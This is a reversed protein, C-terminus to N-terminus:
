PHLYSQLWRFPWPIFVRTMISWQQGSSSRCGNRQEQSAYEIIRSVEAYDDQGGWKLAYRLATRGENDRLDVDAGSKCLLDVCRVRSKHNTGAIIMLATQGRRNLANVPAGHELIAKATQYRLGDNHCNMVRMLLTHDEEEKTHLCRNHVGLQLLFSICASAEATSRTIGQVESNGLHLMACRLWIDDSEPVLGRKWLMRLMDVHLAEIALNASYSFCPSPIRWAAKTYWTNEYSLLSDVHLTRDLCLEVAALHGHKIALIVSTSAIIEQGELSGIALAAPFRCPESDLFRHYVAYCSRPDRVILSSEITESLVLQLIEVNGVACAMHAASGFHGCDGNVEAGYELLVQVVALHSRAAAISLPSGVWESWSNVDAGNELLCRATEAFGAFAAHHLPTGVWDDSDCAVTQAGLLRKVSAVSGSAAACHLPTGIGDGFAHIDAGADILHNVTSLSGVSAAHHLPTWGEEDRHDVDAGRRLLHRLRDPGQGQQCARTFELHIPDNPPKVPVDSCPAAASHNNTTHHYQNGFHSRSNGDARVNEVHLRDSTTGGLGCSGTQCSDM